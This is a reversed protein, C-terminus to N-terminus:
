ITWTELTVPTKTSRSRSLSALTKRLHPKIGWPQNQQAAYPYLLTVRHCEYEKLYAYMQYLDGRSPTAKLGPTVAKWKTDAIFCTTKDKSTKKFLLDPKMQLVGSRQRPARKLRRMLYRQDGRGQPLLSWGELGNSTTGRSLVERRIFGVAFSEFLHDMQYLLSFTRVKGVRQDPRNQNLIHGAFEYVDQFRENQRHFLVPAAGAPEYLPADILMAQAQALLRRGETDLSQKALVDCAARFRGGLRPELVLDDYRCWLRHPRAANRMIQRQVMLRGRITGLEEERSLYARPEGRVMETVLRELFLRAFADQLSGRRMALKAQGRIRFPVKGAYALMELLNGQVTKLTSADRLREPKEEADVKPLLEIQANKLSIVGVWPGVTAYEVGRYSSWSFIAKEKRREREQEGSKLEQFVKEPIGRHWPVNADPSEGCVLRGRELVTYRQTAM